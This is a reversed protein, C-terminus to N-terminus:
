LITWVCECGVGVYDYGYAFDVFGTGYPIYGTNQTKHFTTSETFRGFSECYAPNYSTSCEPNVWLESSGTDVNVSVTQGPMGLVLDISYFSGTQRSALSSVDQRKGVSKLGVSAKMPFRLIGDQQVMRNDDPIDLAYAALPLAAIAVLPPLMAALRRRLSHGVNERSSEVFSQVYNSFLAVSTPFPVDVM